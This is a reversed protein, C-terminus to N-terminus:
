VTSRVAVSVLRIAQHLLGERYGCVVALVQMEDAVVRARRLLRLMEHLWGVVRLKAVDTGFLAHVRFRSNM